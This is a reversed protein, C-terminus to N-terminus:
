HDEDTKLISFPSGMEQKQEAELAWLDTLKKSVGSFNLLIEYNEKM